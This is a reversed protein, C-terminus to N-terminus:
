SMNIELGLLLFESQPHGPPLLAFSSADVVRLGSVGFVKAESDVVAMPDSEVGMKCTCSAHWVTLLTDRVNNLIEEDTSVVDLGPFYEMGDVLVDSMFTSNFAQRVRKFAAIAVAQDTPSVLWQPDIIPLDSASSSALTVTGRSLPAVLAALITAYQYGDRPQTTALNSFNGVYGPASLYEIEPWDAPFQALESLAFSGLDSRLSDPTKEWGLYDCQTTSNTNPM